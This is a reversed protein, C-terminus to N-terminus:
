GAENSTDSSTDSALPGSNICFDDMCQADCFIDPNSANAAITVIAVFADFLDKEFSKISRRQKKPEEEQSGLKSLEKELLFDSWALGLGKYAQIGKSGLDRSDQKLFNKILGKGTPRLNLTATWSVGHAQTSLFEGLNLLCRMYFSDKKLLVSDQLDFKQTEPWLLSTYEASLPLLGGVYDKCAGHKMEDTKPGDDFCRQAIGEKSVVFYINNSSHERGINQCYRCNQGSITITFFTSKTSKSVQRVQVQSYLPGFAERILKELSANLPDTPEIRRQKKVIVGDIRPRKSKGSLNGLYLPAGAPVAFGCTEKLQEQRLETRIKTAKLLEYFGESGQYFDELDYDREILGNSPEGLVYMLQYPRGPNNNIDMDNIIGFGFCTECRPELKKGRCAKCVATKSNGVMRLGSGQKGAATDGYVSKDVVDEWTNQQPEHRSGFQESLDSILSERIILAQDATVYYSPWYLHAGTKIRQIKTGSADLASDEKYTTCTVITTSKVTFFRAVTRACVTSVAQIGKETIGKIQKCDLDVFLRFCPVAWEYKILEVAYMLYMSHGDKKATLIKAMQRLFSDEDSFSISLNGKNMLVHTTASKNSSQRDKNWSSFGKAFYDRDNMSKYWPKLSKKVIRKSDIKEIALRFIPARCNSREDIADIWTVDFPDVYDENVDQKVIFNDDLAQSM